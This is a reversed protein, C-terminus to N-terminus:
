HRPVCYMSMKFLFFLIFYNFTKTRSKVLIEDPNNSIVQKIARDGEILFAKAELRGKRTSLNKYWKIPKLPNTRHNPMELMTDEDKIHLLTIAM